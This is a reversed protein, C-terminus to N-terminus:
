DAFHSPHTAFLSHGLERGRIGDFFGRGSDNVCAYMAQARSFHPNSPPAIPDYNSRPHSARELLKRTNGAM